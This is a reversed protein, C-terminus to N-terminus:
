NKTKPFLYFIKLLHSIYIKFIGRGRTVEKVKLTHVATTFLTVAPATISSLSYLSCQAPRPGDRHVGLGLTSHGTNGVSGASCHNKFDLCFLKCQPPFAEKKTWKAKFTSFSSFRQMCSATM